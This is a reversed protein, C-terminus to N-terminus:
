RGAQARRRAKAWDLAEDERAFARVDLEVQRLVTAVSFGRAAARVGMSPSAIALGCLRPALRRTVQLWYAPVSPDVVVVKWVCFALVVPGAKLQEDLVARLAAQRQPRM